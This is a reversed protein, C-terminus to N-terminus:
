KKKILYIVGAVIIIAIIVVMWNTNKQVVKGNVLQGNITASGGQAINNVFNASTASTNKGDTATVTWVWTGTNGQTFEKTFTCTSSSYTATGSNYNISDSASADGRIITYTCGTTNANTVTATFTYTQSSTIATNTAPSLSPAQPITNDVIVGTVLGEAYVVGNTSNKYTINIIYDSADELVATNVNTLTLNSLTLNVTLNKGLLTWSSNATSASKAYVTINVSNEVQSPDFAYGTLSSNIVYNGGIIGNQAPSIITVTNAGLVLSIVSLLLITSIITLLIKKEKM